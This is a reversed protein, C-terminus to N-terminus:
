ISEKLYEKAKKRLPMIKEKVKVYDIENEPIKENEHVLRDEIGLTTLLDIMRESTSISPLTVFEKEFIISFATGHFSSTVVYSAHQFLWLFERPGVDILDIDAGYKKGNNITTITIVPCNYKRKLDQIIDKAYSPVALFYILIYKEPTKIRRSEQVWFEKEQLFVPDLHMEVDINYERKFLEAMSKERVSIADFSDLYQRVLLKQDEPIISKGMSAAYSVKKRAKIGDLFYVPELENGLKWIQDSGAIISCDQFDFDHYNEGNMRETKPFSAIFQEMLNYRKKLKIYRLLARIRNNKGQYRSIIGYANQNRCFDIIKCDGYKEVEKNLSYCQLLAGYNHAYHYTIIRIKKM